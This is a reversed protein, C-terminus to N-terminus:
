RVRRRVAVLGLALGALVWGTSTRGAAGMSCGPLTAVAAAGGDSAKAGAGSGGGGTGADDAVTGGSGGGSSGSAGGGSSSGAGGSGGGAGSSGGSSSGGQPGELGFFKAAYDVACVQENIDYSDATGCSAATDIAVAHGMGTVSYSEVQVVGATSAYENHPYGGVTNSTTPTASAGTLDTWQAVLAALNSTSVTTDTSGQWVSLRPYEGAYGPFGARALTGWQAPTNMPPAYMCTYATSLSNACGFPLGSFSAGAAFVDPYMAMLAVAYAAGASFGSVFVRKPDISYTSKMSDIMEVISEAEGQGRTIDATNGSTNGFWNFCTQTNNQSQQQPYVVYFKYTDALGNWGANSFVSATQSCGHLALVLPASQPMAQPAYSFMLLNGPNSGFTTVQTMSSVAASATGLPESPSVDAACAPLALTAAALAATHILGTRIRM